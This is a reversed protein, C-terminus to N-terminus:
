RLGRDPGARDMASRTPALARTGYRDIPSRFEARVTTSGGIGPFGLDSYPVECTITATVYGTEGLPKGFDAADVHVTLSGCALDQEALTSRARQEATAAASPGDHALSAARAASRAAENVASEATIVRMGVLVLGFLAILAVAGFVAEITVDGREGGLHRLRTM